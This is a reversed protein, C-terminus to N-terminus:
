DEFDSKQASVLWKGDKNIVVIEAEETKTEWEAEDLIEKVADFMMPMMAAIIEEKTSEYTIKGSSLLDGILENLTQENFKDSILKEFNMSESDPFTIDTSFVYGGDDKEAERINYATYNKMKGVAKEFIEKFGEEYVKLEEPLEMLSKELDFDKIFAEPLKSVDDTFEAMGKLDIECYANLFGEAALRAEERSSRCASLSFMMVVATLATLVRRM